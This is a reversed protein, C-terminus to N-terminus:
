YILLNGGTLVWTATPAGSNSVWSPLYTFELYWCDQQTITVPFNFAGPTTGRGSQKYIGNWNVTIPVGSGLNDDNAIALHLIQGAYGTNTPANITLSTQESPDLVVTHIAAALVDPTISASDNPHNFVKLAHDVLPRDIRASDQTANTNDKGIMYAGSASARTSWGISM